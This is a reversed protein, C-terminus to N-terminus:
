SMEGEYCSLIDVTVWNGYSFVEKEFCLASAALETHAAAMRQNKGAEM